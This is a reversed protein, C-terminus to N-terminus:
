DSIEIIKVGETNANAAVYGIANANEKVFEIVEKDSKKIPPPNDSGSFIAKMWYKKINAASKGHVAHSFKDRVESKEKQDVVLVEDGNDWQTTKKLFIKSLKTKSISSIPNGSNVIVKFDEALLPSILFTIFISYFIIKKFM